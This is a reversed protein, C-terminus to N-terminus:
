IVLTRRLLAVDYDNVVKISGRVCAYQLGLIVVLSLNSGLTLLDHYQECICSERAEADQFM